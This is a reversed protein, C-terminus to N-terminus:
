VIGVGEDAGFGTIADEIDVVPFSLTQGVDLYPRTILGAGLLPMESEGSVTIVGYGGGTVGGINDVKLITEAVVAGVDAKPFIIIAVGLTPFEVILLGVM